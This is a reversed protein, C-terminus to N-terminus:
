WVGKHVCEMGKLIDRMYPRAVRPDLPENYEDETMVPGNEVFEQVLYVCDGKVDHIVEVLNAINRHKLQKMVMVEKLIEEDTLGLRRRKLRKKDIKQTWQCPWVCPVRTTMHTCGHLM